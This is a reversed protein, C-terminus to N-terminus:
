EVVFQDSLKYAELSFPFFYYFGLDQRILQKLSHELLWQQIYYNSSLTNNGDTSFTILENCM